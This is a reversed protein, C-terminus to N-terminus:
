VNLLFAEISILFNYSGDRVCGTCTHETVDSERCGWPIYGALRRQGHSRGPLFVSTPQWKRTWPIKSLVWTEQTEQMQCVSEKGSRWEISYLAADNLDYVNLYHSPHFPM